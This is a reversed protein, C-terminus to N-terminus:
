NAASSEGQRLVAQQEDGSRIQQYFKQLTPYYNAQLVLIESKLTRTVQVSGGKDEAAIRYDAAKADVHVEKPLSDIKWGAPLAIKTLDKTEFLYHFYIANTRQTHEFTHKQAGSFLGLPLLVRKGASSAWGPIKVDYEAVLKEDSSTWEPKNKLTVEATVPIAYKLSEELNEKRQTDDNFREALRAQLALMGSYTVKVQGELAGDDSLRFDGERMTECESAEPVVTQVWTGGQKDLRLGAVGTEEWPLMGYPAFKTAPDLYLDKGDVKVLVANADLEKTNMRKQNFFHENRGSLLLYYSEIGAVRSLAVFLLNIDKGTGEKSKWVDEVSENPKYKEEKALQDKREFNRNKIEQCRAYIKKLKEEASDGPAVTEGLAQEMAKRRDMFKETQDFQKKGFEKWFKDPDSEFGDESYVFVIRYKIEDEPPMHDEVQFAPVDISTMRIVHDSGEAPANTGVPLGAPWSWQVPYREYPRLAFDAKKTFLNASIVWQSFYIYYDAFDYMFKYEIISGVQVDPLTFTKALYKQTRSKVITNEFIKGDFNIVQGDPHITRARIGSIGTVAKSYPIEVNAYKRGEETLVKIRVYNLETHTTRGTEKRDVQRYLYIAPAGPAKPESTMKLEAPDIPQWDDAGVPQKVFWLAALLVMVMFLFIRRLSVAVRRSVM